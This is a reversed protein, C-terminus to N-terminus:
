KLESLFKIAKQGIDRRYQMGDFKIMEVAQYALKQAANLNDAWATVGLVRGGNTIFKGDYYATGAHFVKVNELKEALDIGYITKGKEYKGPYGASSLIVCVCTMPKWNLSKQALKGECCLEILELLDNELLPLYVQTEPDGFRANFELVKPGDSTLMVGPYLIGKYDINENKCGNLWRDIIIQKVNQLAEKDVFPCPCIAGMGGTNPGEDNDFARKHDQSAPFLLASKGDCIAHLSVETGELLEQIVIRDGASGFEKKIMIRDIAEIAEDINHCIIVGKGLALGDAKVACKGNLGAVFSRALDVNTFIGSKASPINYRAMFQQSFAKSAEFKAAQKTPGWISFGAASFLDVIGMALPNDPGVVTLDPKESKAFSLLGDLDEASITVCKVPQSNSSLREQAIGANGPACWIQEIDKSQALKWVIAHERGGSGIVLVKM